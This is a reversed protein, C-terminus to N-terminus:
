ASTIGLITNTIDKSTSLSDRVLSVGQTYIYWVPSALLLAWHVGFLGISGYSGLPGMLTWYVQPLGVSGYSGLSGRKPLSGSQDANFSQNFTQM